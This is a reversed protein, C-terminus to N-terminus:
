SDSVSFKLVNSSGHVTFTTPVIRLPPLPIYRFGRGKGSQQTVSPATTSNNTSAGAFLVGQNLAPLTNTFTQNGQVYVKGDSLAKKYTRFVWM